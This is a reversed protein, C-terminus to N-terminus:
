RRRMAFQRVGGSIRMTARLKERVVKGVARADQTTWSRESDAAELIDRLSHWSPAARDDVEWVACVLDLLPDGAEAERNADLLAGEDEHSLFCESEPRTAMQAWLQQMDVGHEANCEIIPLVGFRRSGTEDHLVGRVNVTAAYVTRRARTEAKHAYASRYTDSTNTIHAKLAAIDSKRFTADLEGLEVVWVSTARQVSDRDSPDLLLGERMWDPERVLSRIFRTKQVGQPGQLVLVLQASVGRNTSAPVMAAHAATVCWAWFLRRALGVRAADQWELKIASFLAEFRDVGDWPKSGIWQAVPHYPNSAIILELQGDLRSVSLGHYHAWERIQALGANKIRDATGVFHPSTYEEEHTMLNYRATVQYHDLMAQVNEVCSIVGGKETLKVWKIRGPSRAAIPAGNMDRPGDPEPELAPPTWREGGMFPRADRAPREVPNAAGQDWGRHLERRVRAEGDKATLGNQDCAPMLAREADVLSVGLEGLRAAAAFLQRGRSGEPTSALDRAQGEIAKDVYPDSGLAVPALPQASPAKKPPRLVDVMWQPAEAIPAEDMWVWRGGSKPSVSPWTVIQGSKGRVDVGRLKGREDQKPQWGRSKAFARLASVENSMPPSPHRFVLHYGGSPTRAMLTRPMDPLYELIEPDDVDVVFGFSQDCLVGVNATPWRRWWEAIQAPDKSAEKQWQAFAPAKGDADHGDHRVPLPVVRWGRAAYELAASLVSPVPTSPPTLSM